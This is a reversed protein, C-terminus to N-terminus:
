RRRVLPSACCINGRTVSSSTSATFSSRLGSAGERRQGVRGRASGLSRRPPSGPSEPAPAPGEIIFAASPLVPRAFVASHCQGVSRDFTDLSCGIQRSGRCSPQIFVERFERLSWSIYGNYALRLLSPLLLLFLSVKATRPQLGCRTKISLSVGSATELSRPVPM